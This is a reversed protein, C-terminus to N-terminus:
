RIATETLFRIVTVSLVHLDVQTEAGMELTIRLNKNRLPFINRVSTTSLLMKTGLVNEETLMLNKSVILYFLAFAVSNNRYARM